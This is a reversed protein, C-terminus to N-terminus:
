HEFALEASCVSLKVKIRSERAVFFCLEGRSCLAKLRYRSEASHEGRRNRFAEVDLLLVYRLLFLVFPCFLFSQAILKQSLTVARAQRNYFFTRM